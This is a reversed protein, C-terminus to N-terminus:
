NENGYVQGMLKAFPRLLRLMENVEYVFTNIDDTPVTDIGHESDAAVRRNIEMLEMMQLQAETMTELAQAYSVVNSFYDFIKEVAENIAKLEEPTRVHKSM